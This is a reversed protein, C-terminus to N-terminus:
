RKEVEFSKLARVPGLAPPAMAQLTYPVRSIGCPVPTTVVGGAENLECGQIQM